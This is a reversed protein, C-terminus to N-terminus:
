IRLLIVLTMHLYVAALSIDKKLLAWSKPVRPRVIEADPSKRFRLLAHTFQKLHNMLGSHPLCDLILVIGRPSVMGTARKLSFCRLSLGRVSRPTKIHHLIGTLEASFRFLLQELLLFFQKLATNAFLHFVTSNLALFRIPLMHTHWAWFFSVVEFDFSVLNSIRQTM